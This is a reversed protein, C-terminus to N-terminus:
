KDEYTAESLVGECRTASLSISPNGTNVPMVPVSATAGAMEIVPVKVEISATQGATYSIRINADTITKFGVIM